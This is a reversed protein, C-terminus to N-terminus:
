RNALYVELAKQYLNVQVPDNRKRSVEVLSELVGQHFPTISFAEELFGEAEKYNGRFMAIRGLLYFITARDPDRRSARELVQQALSYRGGVIYAEAKKMALTITEAGLMREAETYESIAAGWRGEEKLLDGLRIHREAFPGNVADQVEQSEQGQEGLMVPLFRYEPLYRLRAAQVDKLFEEWLEEIGKGLFGYGHAESESFARLLEAIGKIGRKEVFRHVWFALESFALATEYGSRLKALSPMMRSFPVWRNRLRAEYLLTEQVPTLRLEPSRWRREWYKAVGEHLWLPIPSGGMCLLMYHVLEHALTDQWRYGRVLIRPTIIMIRHFKTLAITGSTEVEKQTLTSVAIFDESQPYIEVRIPLDPSSLEIGFEKSFVEYAKRVTQIVFPVLLEDKGPVVYVEVVSDGARKMRKTKELTREVLASFDRVSGNDTEKSLSSLIGYAQAYDGEYFRLQGEAFRVLPDRASYQKLLLDYLRKAEKLNEDLLANQFSQFLNKGEVGQPCSQEKSCPSSAPISGPYFLLLLIFMFGPTPSGQKLSM